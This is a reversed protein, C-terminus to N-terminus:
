APSPCNNTFHPLPSLPPLPLISPPTKKYIPFTNSPFPPANPPTPPRSRCHPCTCTSPSLPPAPTHAIHLSLLVQQHEIHLAHLQGRLGDRKRLTAQLSGLREKATGAEERVGKM